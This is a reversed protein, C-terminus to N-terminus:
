HSSQALPNKKFKENRNDEILYAHIESIKGQLIFNQNLALYRLYASMSNFGKIQSDNKIREYQDRKLKIQITWIRAM